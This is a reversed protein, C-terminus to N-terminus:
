EFDEIVSKLENFYKCYYQVAKIWTGCRTTIPNPFEPCKENFIATRKPYNLFTKKMSGIFQDVDQYHSRTEECVDHLAHAM